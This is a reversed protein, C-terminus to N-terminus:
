ESMDSVNLTAGNYKTYGFSKPIGYEDNEFLLKPSEPGIMGSFSLKLSMEGEKEGVSVLEAKYYSGATFSIECKEYGNYFTKGDESFEVFNAINIGKVNNYPDMPTHSYEIYGSHKGAIKGKIEKDGYATFGADCDQAYPIDLRTKKVTIPKSPYYGKLEVRRIRNILRDENGESCRIMEPWLAKTGNPHWSMPSLYVWKEESDNLQVGRYGPVNMSRDIDILVPGINGKRFKRIGDVSYMYFNAILPQTVLSAYPRPLLGVIACNTKESGRTSMVIGLKEDPSLITTEDYGPVNTIQIIEDSELDQIVSDCLAGNKIGAVSIATGGHVFQKIEGGRIASMKLYGENETDETLFGESSILKVDNIIYKNKVKELKGIFNAAGFGILMTWAIHNNDPSIIIESWHHTIASNNRIYDPYEVPVLEAKVCSDIDPNCELVYDGLLVRKNDTYPMFRIGNATKHESIIGSYINRFNTGDDCTIAVYYYDKTGLTEKRKYAVLVNGSFTYTAFPQVIYDPLPITTVEVNGFGNKDNIIM